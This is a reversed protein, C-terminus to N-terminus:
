LGLGEAVRALRDDFTLVSGGTQQAALLVCCDPLRLGTDARLMALRVPSDDTLGVSAV